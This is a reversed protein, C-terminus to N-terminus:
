FRVRPATFTAGSFIMWQLRLPEMEKRFQYAARAGNILEVWDALRVGVGAEGYGLTLSDPESWPLSQAAGARGWVALRGSPRYMSSADLLARPEIEGRMRDVVPAVRLNLGLELRKAPLNHTLAADVVPYLVARSDEGVSNRSVDLAAGLGLTSTTVRNFRHLWAETVQALVSEQGTSFSVAM